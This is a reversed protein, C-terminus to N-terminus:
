SVRPGETAGWMEALRGDDIRFIEFLMPQTDGHPTRHPALVTDHVRLQLTQALHTKDHRTGQRLHDALSDVRSSGGTHKEAARPRFVLRGAINCTLSRPVTKAGWLNSDRLNIHSRAMLALHRV